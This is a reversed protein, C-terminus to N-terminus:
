AAMRANSDDVEDEDDWWSSVLDETWDALTPALMGAGAYMVLPQGLAAGAVATAIGVAVDTPVPGVTPLVARLGGAVISGGSYVATNMLAQPMQSESVDKKFVRFRGQVKALQERAKILATSQTRPRSIATSRSRSKTRAPM